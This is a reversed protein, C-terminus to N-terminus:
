KLSNTRIGGYRLDWPNLSKRLILDEPKLSKRLILYHMEKNIKKGDVYILKKIIYKGIRCPPKGKTHNFRLWKEENHNAKREKIITPSGDEHCVPCELPLEMIDPIIEIFQLRQKKLETLKNKLDDVHVRESIRMSKTNELAEKDRIHRVSPQYSVIHWDLPLLNSTETKTSIRRL